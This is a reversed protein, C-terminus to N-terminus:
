SYTATTTNSIQGAGSNITPTVQPATADIKYVSLKNTAPNLVLVLFKDAQSPLPIAVVQPPFDPM